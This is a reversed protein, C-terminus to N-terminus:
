FVGELNVEIMKSTIPHIFSIQDVQLCFQEAKKGYLEDGVIPSNLGNQHAAHLRLQHPRRTTPYFAVKTQAEIRELVEWKTRTGKGYDYCIQHEESGKSVPRIPLNIYGSDTGLTGDLLAVFRKKIQKKKFLLTLQKCVEENKAVVMLGSTEDGLQHPLHASPYKKRLFSFVSSRYKAKPMSPLDSPKNIIMLHEDEYLEEFVIQEKEEASWAVELGELMHGLIPVCKEKCAPYFKGHEKEGSKPPIGWWFEAIAIPKLHHQFAYQLLKPAACEGSASPPKENHNLSFIEFLGKKELKTNLFQYEQFFRKQLSSSKEKRAKKLETVKALYLASSKQETPTEAELKQLTENLHNVKLQEEMFSPDATEFDFIPPVFGDLRVKGALKGSFARLYGYEGNQDKIVLVGFMKGSAKPSKTPEFGFDHVWDKQSLLYSQLDAVAKQAVTPTQTQFPSNLKRPLSDTDVDVKLPFICLEEKHEGVQRM